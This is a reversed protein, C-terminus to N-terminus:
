CFGSHFNHGEHASHELTCGLHDRLCGPVDNFRHQVVAATRPVGLQVAIDQFTFLWRLGAGLLLALPWLGPQKATVRLGLERNDPVGPRNGPSSGILFTGCGTTPQWTAVTRPLTSTVCGGAARLCVKKARDTGETADRPVLDFMSVM